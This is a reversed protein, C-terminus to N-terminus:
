RQRNGGLLLRSPKPLVERIRQILTSALFPKSIFKWGRDLTLMRVPNASMVIVRLDRRAAQLYRALAPGEVEPMMVDTLLLDIKRRSREARELAEKGNAAILIDYGAKRLVSSILLRYIEEDEALLVTQRGSALVTKVEDEYGLPCLVDTVVPPHFFQRVTM